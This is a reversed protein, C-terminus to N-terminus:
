QSPSKDLRLFILITVTDKSQNLSRAGPDKLIFDTKFGPCVVPILPKPKEILMPVDESSYLYISGIGRGNM